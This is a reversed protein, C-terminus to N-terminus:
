SSFAFCVTISRLPPDVLSLPWPIGHQSKFHSFRDTTRFSSISFELCLSHYLPSVWTPFLDSVSPLLYFFVVTSPHPSWPLFPLPIYRSHLAPDLPHCSGLLDNYLSLDLHLQFSSSPGLIFPLRIQINGHWSGLIFAHPNKSPLQSWTYHNPSTFTLSIISLPLVKHDTYFLPRVWMRLRSKICLFCQTKRDDVDDDSDFWPHM